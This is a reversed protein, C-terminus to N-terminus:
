PGILRVRYYRQASAGPTTDTVSLSLQGSGATRQAGALDQWPGGASDSYMLQYTKGPFAAWTVTVGGSVPQVNQIVFDLAPDLRDYVGDGNSDLLAAVPMALFEDPDINGDGNGAPAQAVLAGGALSSYAAAAIYVPQPLSGFAQALDITGEMVGVDHIATKTSQASAPANFWAVLSNQGAGALFPKTSAVAVKGAKNWPAPATAGPLLQDTVFIIHDNVGNTGPSRTAVYLTQNRVAAYLTTGAVSLLYNTSDITGDMLFLPASAPTIACAQGSQPSSGAANTATVTYCYQTNPALGADSFSTGLTTAIPTGGRRVIYGTAGAVATWTLDIRNTSIATASLNQPPLPAAAILSFAIAQNNTLLTSGNFSVKRAVAGTGDEVGITASLGRGYRSDAPQVDQYQFVIDNGAENLIAQFTFTVTNTYGFHPLGVWSVVVSRNPATGVTGILISGGGPPYLDDWFPYLMNNPTDASPIDANVFKTMGANAFGLLGNSGVYLNTYTQGYFTFPFPLPQAPSVQDDGLVIATMGAPDIWSFTADFMQYNHAVTITKSKTNSGVTSSATLTVTYTGLNSYTHTPHTQTSPASGDGFNWIYGTANISQNSFTVTLPPEGAAPNASFRAIPGPANTLAKALNLRGETFCKGALAPIPDVNALVRYILQTYSESPFQAKLLALTGSVHPCAMSTGNLSGYANNSSNLSSYIAVGPAGLDVGDAGFNSFSALADNRDTAAVSVVNNPTYAAPYFPTTDIDASNNGAATVFIVGAARATNIADLLAQSFCSECGWSNSLIRAGKAIAYDICELADSNSGNGDSALFKLAMLKVRWAVGVVGLGNNGMAGITGAVHTGHRNDDDPDGSGTITNIGHVDDIFGNGDDDIGNGPIEGPNIWMNAALDEHTYRIGTDIVAVIVNGADTRTNWADVAHIDAGATGGNQGTNRLAWLTGDLFLPDNPTVTISVEYDPEVYDFLGSRRYQEIAQKATLGPPLRLVQLGGLRPYQRHVTAGLAAHAANLQAPAVAPRPKALLRDPRYRPTNTGALAPHNFCLLVIVLLIPRSSTTGHHHRPGPL